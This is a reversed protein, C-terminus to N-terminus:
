RNVPITVGQQLAKQIAEVMADYNEPIHPWTCSSCDKIGQPTYTPNGGCTEFFYLPCFCFLCNFDEHKLGQHCPFFACKANNFFRYSAKM